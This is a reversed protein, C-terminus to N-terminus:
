RRVGAPATTCSPGASWRAPRTSSSWSGGPGARPGSWPRHAHRRRGPQRQPPPRGALLAVVDSVDREDPPRVDFRDPLGPLASVTGPLDMTPSDAARAGRAPRAARGRPVPGGVPGSTCRAEGRGPQLLPGASCTGTAPNPVAATPTLRSGAPCRSRSASSPWGAASRTRRRATAAICTTPPNAVEVADEGTVFGMRGGSAVDWISMGGCHAVSPHAPRPTATRSPSGPRRGPRQGPRRVEALPRQRHEGPRHGPRLVPEAARDDRQHLRLRPVARDPRPLEPQRLLVADAPAAVDRPHARHPHPHRRQARAGDPLHRGARLGQGPDEDVRRHRHPRARPGGRRASRSRRQDLTLAATTPVKSAFVPTFRGGTIDSPNAAGTFAHNLVAFDSIGSTSSPTAAASARVPRRAPRRSRDHPGPGRWGAVIAGTTLNVLSYGGGDCGKSSAAQPAPGTTAVFAASALSATRRRDQCLHAPPVHPGRGPHPPHPETRCGGEAAGSPRGCQTTRVPCVHARAADVAAGSGAPVSVMGTMPPRASDPAAPTPPRAPGRNVTAPQHHHGQEGVTIASRARCAPASCAMSGRPLHGPDGRAADDLRPQGGRHDGPVGPASRREVLRHPAVHQM